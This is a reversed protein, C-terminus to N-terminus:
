RPEKQLVAAEDSARPWYRKFDPVVCVFGTYYKWFGNLHPPCEIIVIPATTYLTYGFVVPCKQIENALQM